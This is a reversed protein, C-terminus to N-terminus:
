GTPGFAVFQCGRDFVSGADADFSLVDCTGTGPSSVMAHHNSSTEVCALTVNNATTFNTAYTVTYNGTSNKAVGTVNHSNPQLDGTDSFSCYVKAIATSVSLMNSGAKVKLDTSGDDVSWVVSDTSSGDGDATHFTFNAGSGKYDFYYGMNNADGNGNGQYFFLLADETASAPIRIFMRADSGSDTSLQELTFSANGGSNSVSHTLANGDFTLASEVVASSSSGYTVLGNATSGSFSIGASAATEWGPATAGDNMTLVQDATGKALKTLTTGSVYYFMDGATYSALGTGGYTTIVATGNWVGTGITGVTVLNGGGVNHASFYTSVTDVNTMRMTGADNILIGDGSAVATTGRATGGDVLNLETTTVTAGDLIELEAESITASGITISTTFTPTAVPAIGAEALTQNIWNSGDFKLVENAQVGSIVINNHKTISHLENSSASNAM